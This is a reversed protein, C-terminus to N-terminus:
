MLSASSRAFSSLVTGLRQLFDKLLLHRVVLVFGLEVIAQECLGLLQALAGIEHAPVSLGIHDAEVLLRVVSPLFIHRQLTVRLVLVREIVSYYLTGIGERM